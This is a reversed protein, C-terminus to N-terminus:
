AIATPHPSTEAHRIMSRSLELLLEARLAGAVPDDWLNRLEHPDEQLDYLEGWAADAYVSLRHRPTQLTRMRTRGPFGFMTRQGEEEILVADRVRETEGSMLPLLSAGQM